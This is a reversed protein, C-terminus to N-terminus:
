LDDGTRTDAPHPSLRLQREATHRSPHRPCRWPGGSGTWCTRSPCTPVDVSLLRNCYKTWDIVVATNTCQGGLSTGGGRSLVPAGFEACVAVADAGADVTRPVVVGIPVQRYNSGDTAYAGRSGADFRVEADVRDRLTKELARMDLATESGRAEVVM